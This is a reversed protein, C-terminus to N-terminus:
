ACVARWGFAVSSGLSTSRRLPAAPVVLLQDYSYSYKLMLGASYQKNEFQQHRNTAGDADNCHYTQQNNSRVQKRAQKLSVAAMM